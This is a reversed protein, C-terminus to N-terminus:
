ADTNLGVNEETTSTEERERWKVTFGNSYRMDLVEAHRAQQLLNPLIQKAFRHLREDTKHKGLKVLTGNSLTFEWTGRADQNLGQLYLGHGKVMNYLELYRQAVRWESEEPGNLQPLEPPLYNQQANKLILEGRSNLLGREGWRAVAVQEVLTVELGNPWRRQVEARDVWSLDQLETRVDAISLDLFGAQKYKSLVAEVELSTVRELDAHLRVNELPKNLLLYAARGSAYFVGVLLTLVVLGQLLRSQLINKLLSSGQSLAHTETVKKSVRKTVKKKVPRRINQRVNPRSGVPKDKNWIM